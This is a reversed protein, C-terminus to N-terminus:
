FDVEEDLVSTAASTNVPAAAPAAAKKASSKKGNEDMKNDRLVMAKKIFDTTISGEEGNHIPNTSGAM